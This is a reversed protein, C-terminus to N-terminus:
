GHQSLIPLHLGTTQNCTLNLNANGNTGTICAGFSCSGGPLCAKSPRTDCYCSYEWFSWGIGSDQAPVKASCDGFETLLAPMNWLKSFGVAGAIAEPAGGGYHHFVYVLHEGTHKLWDVEAAAIGLDGIPVPAEGTDMVGVAIDPLM